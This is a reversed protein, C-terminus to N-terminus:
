LYEKGNKGAELKTKKELRNEFMKIKSMPMSLLESLSIAGNGYITLDMLYEEINEADV